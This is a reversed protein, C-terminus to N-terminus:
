SGYLRERETRGGPLLTRLNCLANCSSSSGRRMGQLDGARASSEVLKYGPLGAFVFGWVAGYPDTYSWGTNCCRNPVTAAKRM